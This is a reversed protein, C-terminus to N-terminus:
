RHSLLVQRYGVILPKLGLGGKRDHAATQRLHHEVVKGLTREVVVTPSADALDKLQSNLFNLVDIHLAEDGRDTSVNLSPSIAYVIEIQRLGVQEEEGPRCPYEEVQEWQAKLAILTTPYLGELLLLSKYLRTSDSVTNRAAVPNAKLLDIVNEHM